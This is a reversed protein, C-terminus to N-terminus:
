RRRCRAYAASRGIRSDRPTSAEHNPTHSTHYFYFREDATGIRDDGISHDHRPSKHLHENVPTRDLILLESPAERFAGNQDRRGGKPMKGGFSGM